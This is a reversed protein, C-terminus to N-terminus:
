IGDGDQGGRMRRLREAAKAAEPAQIADAHRAEAAASAAAQRVEGHGDIIAQKKISEAEATIARERWHAAEAELVKVRDALRSVEDRIRSWDAAKEAALADRDAQREAAIAQRRAIWQQMVAPLGKWGHWLGILALAVLSWIGNRISLVDSLANLYAM